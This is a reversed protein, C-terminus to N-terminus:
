LGVNYGRLFKGPAGVVMNSYSFLRTEFGPTTDRRLFVNGDIDDVEILNGPHVLYANGEGAFDGCLLEGVPFYNDAIVPVPGADTMLQIGQYAINYDRAKVDVWKHTEKSDVLTMFDENSVIVHSARHGSKWLKGVSKVIATDIGEGTCNRRRGTLAPNGTITVGNFAGSGATAPVWAGFGHMKVRTLNGSSDHDLASVLVDGNAWSVGAVTGSLTIVGTDEAIGTIARATASRFAGGVAAAGLLEMGVEFRNIRDLAVTITSGSNATITALVGYGDGCIERAIDNRMQQIAGDTEKQALDFLAHDSLLMVERSFGAFGHTTTAPVEWQEYVNQKGATTLSTGRSAAQANTFNAGISRGMGYHVPQKFIGGNGFDYNGKAKELIGLLPTCDKDNFLIESARKAISEKLAGSVSTADAAM